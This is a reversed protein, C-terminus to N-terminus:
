ELWIGEISGGLAEATAEHFVSGTWSRRKSPTIEVAVDDFSGWSSNVADLAYATVYKARIAENVANAEDGDLLRAPGEVSVMLSTGTAATGQVLMSATGRAAVNRAKRTMSATEFYLKGDQYLYIVYALHVTGNENLTGIAANLRQGLVDDIEGDTPKALYVDRATAM